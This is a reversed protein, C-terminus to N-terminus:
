LLSVQVTESCSVSRYESYLIGDWLAIRLMHSLLINGEMFTVDQTELCYLARQNGLDKMLIAKYYKKQLASLGHYIVVETKKPLETAVEAKVRRLLFPQLLKHLENATYPFFGVVCSTYSLIEMGIGCALGTKDNKM